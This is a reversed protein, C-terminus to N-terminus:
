PRRHYKSKDAFGEKRLVLFCMQVLHGVDHLLMRTNADGDYAVCAVASNLPFVYFHRLCAGLGNCMIQAAFANAAGSHIDAIKRFAIREARIIRSGIVSVPPGDDCYFLRSCGLIQKFLRKLKSPSM